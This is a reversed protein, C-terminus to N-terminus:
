GLVRFLATITGTTSRTIILLRHPVLIVKKVGVPYSSCGRGKVLLTGQAKERVQRGAGFDPFFGESSPKGKM